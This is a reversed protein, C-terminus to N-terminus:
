IKTLNVKLNAKEKELAVLHVSEKRPGKLKSEEDSLKQAELEKAM